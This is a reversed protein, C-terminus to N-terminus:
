GGALMTLLMVSPEVAYVSHKLRAPLHIWSGPGAQTKEDGLVLDLRGRVVQIVVPLASTHETLEQGADFGFAIVRVRDDRYLVKSLTGEAPIELTAAVDDIVTASM